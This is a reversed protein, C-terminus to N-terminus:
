NRGEKLSVFDQWYPKNQILDVVAPHDPYKKQMDLLVDDIAQDIKPRGFLDNNDNEYTWKNFCNEPVASRIKRVMRVREETYKPSMSTIGSTSEIFGVWANKVQGLIQEESNCDM